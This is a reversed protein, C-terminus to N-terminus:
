SGGGWSDGHVAGRKRLRRPPEVGALIALERLAAMIARPTAGPASLTAELAKIREEADEWFARRAANSPRGGGRNGWQGGKLLRGRGHRPVVTATKRLPSVEGPAKTTPRASGRPAPRDCNESSAEGWGTYEMIREAGEPNM